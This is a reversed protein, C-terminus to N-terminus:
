ANLTPLHAEPQRTGWVRVDALAAEVAALDASTLRVEVAHVNEELHAATRTAPIPLVGWPQALLWALALQAGTCGLVRSIVALRERLVSNHRLNERQFRPLGRRYDDPALDGDSRVSGALFGRGLPSYAMFAIGLRGCLPLLDREPERSWLSYETQLVVLPGAACAREITAPGAESLGFARIKGEEQLRTLEGVTEEIPTARDVRHQIYVDIRDTALRGLSAECARRVHRPSGDLSVPTGSSDLVWGFKTAIM